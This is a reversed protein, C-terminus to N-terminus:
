PEIEQLAGIRPRFYSAKYITQPEFFNFILPEYTVFIETALITEDDRLSLGGPLTPLTDGEVGFESSKSLTGGGSRQWFISAPTDENQSIASVIALTSDEQHFPAMIQPVALFIDAVVNESIKEDRTVLDSVSVVTHQVKLHTLLFNGTEVTGMLILLFLPLSLGIEILIAGDEDRWLNRLCQRAKKYRDTPSM